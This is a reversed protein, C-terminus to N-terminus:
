IGLSPQHIPVAHLYCSVKILRLYPIPSLALQKKFDFIDIVISGRNKMYKCLVNEKYVHNILRSLEVRQYLIGKNNKSYTVTILNYVYFHFTTAYVLNFNEFNRQYTFCFIREKKTYM